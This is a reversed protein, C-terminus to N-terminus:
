PIFFERLYAKFKKETFTTVVFGPQDIIEQRPIIINQIWWTVVRDKVAPM